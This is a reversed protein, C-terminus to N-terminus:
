YHLKHIAAHNNRLLQMQDYCTQVNQPMYQMINYNMMKRYMLCDTHYYNHSTNVSNQYYISDFGCMGNGYGMMNGNWQYVQYNGSHTSYINQNYQYYHSSFLSDCNHYIKEQAFCLNHGNTPNKHLDIMVNTAASAQKLDVQLNDQLTTAPQTDDTNKSCAAIILLGAAVIALLTKQM